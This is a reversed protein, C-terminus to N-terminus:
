SLDYAVRSVAVFAPLAFSPVKLWAGCSWRGGETAIRRMGQRKLLILQLPAVVMERYLPPGQKTGTSVWVSVPVIGPVLVIDPAPALCAGRQVVVRCLKCSYSCARM